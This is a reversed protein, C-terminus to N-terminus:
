LVLKDKEAKIKTDIDQWKAKEIELRDIQEQVKSIMGDAESETVDFKNIVVSKFVTGDKDVFDTKERVTYITYGMGPQEAKTEVLIEAYCPTALILVLAIALIKM